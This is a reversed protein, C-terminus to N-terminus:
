KMEQDESYSGGASSCSMLATILVLGFFLMIKKM